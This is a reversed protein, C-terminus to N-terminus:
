SEETWSLEEPYSNLYFWVTVHCQSTRSPTDMMRGLESVLEGSVIKRKRLAKFRKRTAESGDIHTHFSTGCAQWLSDGFDDAQRSHTEFTSAFDEPTPPVEKVIRYVLGFTDVAENPPVDDPYYDPWLDSKESKSNM